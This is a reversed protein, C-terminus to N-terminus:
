ASTINAIAGGIAMCVFVQTLAILLDSFEFQVDVGLAALLLYNICLSTVAVGLAVSSLHQWRSAKKVRAGSITFAIILGLSGAILVIVVLLNVFTDIDIDQTPSSAMVAGTILGVTLGLEQLVFQIVGVHILIRGFSLPSTTPIGMQVSSPVGGPSPSNSSKSILAGFIVFIGDIFAAAIAAIGQDM